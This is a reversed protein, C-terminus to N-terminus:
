GGLRGGTAHLAGWHRIGWNRAKGSQASSQHQTPRVGVMRVVDLLVSGWVVVVGWAHLVASGSVSRSQVSVLPGAVRSVSRLEIWGGVGIVGGDGDGKRVGLWRQWLLAVRRHLCTWGTVPHSSQPWSYAVHRGGGAAVVLMLQM